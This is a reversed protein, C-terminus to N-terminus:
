SDSIRRETCVNLVRFLMSRSFALYSVFTQGAMLNSVVFSWHAAAASGPELDTHCLYTTSVPTLLYAITAGAQEDGASEASHVISM